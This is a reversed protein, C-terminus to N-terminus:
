ELTAYGEPTLEVDLIRGGAASLVYNGSSCVPSRDPLVRCDELTSGEYFLRKLPYHPLGRRWTPGGALANAFHAVGHGNMGHYGLLGAFTWMLIEAQGAPKLHLVIGFTEMEPPVDSNQGILVQG